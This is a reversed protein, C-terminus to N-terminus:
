EFFICCAALGSFLKCWAPTFYKLINPGFCLGLIAVTSFGSIFALSHLIGKVLKWLSQRDVKGKRVKFIVFPILHILAYFKSTRYAVDFGKRFAELFCSHPHRHQCPLFAREAAMEFFGAIESSTAQILPNFMSKPLILRFVSELPLRDKFYDM